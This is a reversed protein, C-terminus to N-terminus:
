ENDTHRLSKYYNILGNTSSDHSSIAEEGQLDDLVGKALQKGLEVGWQDFSNIKWIIGQVFIKHEYLAVLSGLTRPSLVKYMITNTPKNGPFVKHPLLREIEEDSAGVAKMEEIAEQETKGRMFAETQAFVNSMLIRHHERICFYSSVSAIIDAPILKTGQHILQYFAHQGTIGLQGFIIPGTSYDTIINGDRDIRKGNSEMDAQRLYDSFLHLHQDYPLVAHTETGFFNNYWIGILALTVPLNEELPATRFHQDMEFAGQLLKEFNDMGISICISLGVSSWLSYRGGVWDWMSFINEVGIGLKVAAEINDTAAVVHKSVDEPDDISNKLWKIATNANLMTDQTTFSKSVVIFLTTAPKLRELTDWIHSEDVNSVYHMKIDHIAYPRLAETVMVPGLDSGGVGINVVDTIPQDTFGRWQRTRISDSFLRMKELSMNVQPMVDEGDVFVPKNGRNRLATHLVARKETHNIAEGTFMRESWESIGSQEALDYLLKMTKQTIRNKSFDLLLNNFQLSFEDFRNPNDEFLQRMHIDKVDDFHSQLAKWAASQTLRSSMDNSSDQKLITPNTLLNM